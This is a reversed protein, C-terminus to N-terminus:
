KHKGIVRERRGERGGLISAREPNLNPDQNNSSEYNYTCQQISIGWNSSGLKGQWIIRRVHLLTNSAFQGCSASHTFIWTAIYHLATDEFQVMLAWACKHVAPHILEPSQPMSEVKDQWANDQLTSCQASCKLICTHTHKRTAKHRHDSKSRIPGHATNICAVQTWYYLELLLIFKM